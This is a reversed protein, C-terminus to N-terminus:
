GRKVLVVFAREPDAGVLAAEVTQAVSFDGCIRWLLAVKGFADIREEFVREAVKPETRLGTDVADGLPFQVVESAVWGGADSRCNIARGIAHLDALAATAAVRRRPLQGIACHPEGGEPSNGRDIRFM